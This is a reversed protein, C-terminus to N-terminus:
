IKYFDYCTFLGGIQVFAFNAQARKMKGKLRYDFTYAKIKDHLGPGKITSLYPSYKEIQSKIPQLDGHEDMFNQMERGESKELKGNNLKAGLLWIPRDDVKEHLDTIIM